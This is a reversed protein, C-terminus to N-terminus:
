HVSIQVGRERLDAEVRQARQGHTVDRHHRCVVRQGRQQMGHDRLDLVPLHDAWPSRQSGSGQVGAGRFGRCEQVGAGRELWCM